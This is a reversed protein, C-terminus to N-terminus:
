IIRDSEKVQRANFLSTKEIGQIGKTTAFREGSGKVSRPSLIRDRSFKKARMKAEREKEEGRKRDEVRYAWIVNKIRSNAISHAERCVCASSLLCALPTLMLIDLPSISNDICGLFEDPSKLNLAFHLNRKYFIECYLIYTNHLM